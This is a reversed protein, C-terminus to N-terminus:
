KGPRKRVLTLRPRNRIEEEIRVVVYSTQALYKAHARLYALGQACLAELWDGTATEDMLEPTQESFTTQARPTMRNETPGKRKAFIALGNEIELANMHPAWRASWREYRDLFRRNSAAMAPDATLEAAIISRLAAAAEKHDEYLPLSLSKFYTFWGKPIWYDRFLYPTYNSFPQVWEHSPYGHLNLFIDPAWRDALKSRVAAEPLLPKAGTQYGMDVGLAGYRGAHLSHFPENKHMAYALAAGDPNELPEFVFNMKKLAERTAPDRALLEAYRLLYNTSAVENAHQRAVAQLVPKFTVLRPLSVYKASPLFLELVPVERGEYSRGGVYARVGKLGALRRVLDGAADPSLIERTPVIAKDDAPVAATPAPVGPGAPMEAALREDKDQTQYRARLTFGDLAPFRFADRVLGAERLRRWTGAIDIVALYDAEKDWDSEVVVDAVRGTRGDFVLESIRTEKPKLAPFVTKRIVEERGTEKSRLVLEPSAAPWDELVVRVRAPGGELSPHLSPFVNGPASSRSTDTATEKDEPDFRTVGRLLDLTDFYIEDHIAELSSVIEEDLGTRFDPESAQLDVLLRKFYPQKSFTPEGGTKKRIFSVVAPLVERQYFAWFKELDTELREDCVVTDGAAVRLWGTTVKATGWEPLVGSLPISATRPTFSSALLVSGRADRAEVSYVPGGTEAMEFSVRDIPLGLARSLVEDVPYLEQLWRAPEAYTRKVRSFDEREEAFRVTLRDVAKGKLSPLVTEVLWFYGPKYASRVEVRASPFGSAAFFAKIEDRVKARVGPSESVGLDVEVAGGKGAANVIARLKDKLASKADEVEWAFTKEKELVNRGTKLSLATVSVPASGAASRLATKVAEGFPANESPLVLDVGVSELDRGKLDAAAKEVANMFFAEAAGKEGALFRDIDAALDSLQPQGEGYDAFFPFTRSLYSLTRDLGAADAGRVVLASAKGFAKPVAKLLGTGAELAPLKLKGTKILDETLANGGVLVPAALAKRSEVEADIQVVPFSAGAAGLVLRSALDPLAPGAWDAPVVAVADLTDPIGDRDADAYAGRTSFFGPLDFEKAAADAGPREKFAPTLLRKTAGPRSLVVKSRSAGCCLEFTVAACAPYSLVSTRNGLRQDAALALLAQKAKERGADSPVHVEVVLDRIQGQDLSLAKLGDAVPAAAPFEYIAERVITKQLPVDAAALFAALDKELSEYTAGTERGWIEWFYPWRLFFARGTKLLADDSGGVCAIGTVNKRTVLFVRGENPPLPAREKLAERSWALRSGVLIPFPLPSEASVESERRVLGFEVALSEFNARAAIDAALALEGATPQDPVIITLAPKEPFGAGDLDLVARGPLFIRSLSDMDAGAAPALALTVWAIILARKM